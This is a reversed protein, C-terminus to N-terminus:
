RISSTIFCEFAKEMQMGRSGKVLIRDGPLAIERCVKGAEVSDKVHTIRKPDFGQKLAGEVLYKSFPGTAIVFDFLLEAMWAGIERHLGEAQAGLERM